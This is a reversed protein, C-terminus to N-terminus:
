GGIVQDGLAKAFEEQMHTLFCYLTGIQKGDPRTYFGQKALCPPPGPSALPVTVGASHLLGASAGLGGM